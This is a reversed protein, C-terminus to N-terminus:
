RRCKTAFINAVFSRTKRVAYLMLRNPGTFNPNIITWYGEHINIFMFPLVQIQMNDIEMLSFLDPM